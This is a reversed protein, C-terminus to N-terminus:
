AVELVFGHEARIREAITSLLAAVREPARGGAPKGDLSTVSSILRVSNTLFVEDATLLDSPMLSREAAELGVTAAASLVFGRVVGAMVGDSTPPTILRNGSLAFVNAITTCAVNGEANLLLADDANKEAAERAALINDLYDITKLRSAPSGANRVVSSVVLRVPRAALERNWPAASIIISPSTAAKPWLGRAAVGRTVTTRLIVHDSKADGLVADWGSRVVAPDIAIGIAAAQGALRSLHLDGAFPKRNFAVLTDFVGDGLTLGRDAPDIRGTFSGNVWVADGSM